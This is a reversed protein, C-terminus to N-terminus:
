PHGSGGSPKDPDGSQQRHNRDQSILYALASAAGEGTRGYEPAEGPASPDHQVPQQRTDRPSIQTMTATRSPAPQM